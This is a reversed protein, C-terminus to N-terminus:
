GEGMVVCFCRFGAVKSFRDVAGQRKYRIYLMKYSRGAFGLKEPKQEEKREPKLLGGSRLDGGTIVQM